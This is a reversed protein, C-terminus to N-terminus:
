SNFCYQVRVYTITIVFVFSIDSSFLGGSCEVAAALPEVNQDGLDKDALTDLTVQVSAAMAQLSEAASQTSSETLSGKPM